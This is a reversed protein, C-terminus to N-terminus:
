EKNDSKPFLMLYDFPDKSSLRGTFICKEGTDPNSTHVKYNVHFEEICNYIEIKKTEGPQITTSVVFDKDLKGTWFVQEMLGFTVKTNQIVPKGDVIDPIPIEALNKGLFNDLNNFSEYNDPHFEIKRLSNKFPHFKLTVSGESGSNNVTMGDVQEVINNDYYYDNEFDYKVRDIVFKNTPKLLINITKRTYQNGVNINFSFPTDYLNKDCLIMIERNNRKEIRFKYYASQCSIIATEGNELPLYNKKKNGDLDYITFFMSSSIAYINLIDWNDSDFNLKYPKGSEVKCTDPVETIFDDVFIGSNCSSFLTTLLVSLIIIKTGM